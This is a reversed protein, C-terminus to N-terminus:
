DAFKIESLKKCKADDGYETTAIVCIHEKLCQDKCGMQLSPDGAKVKFQFYKRALNRDASM